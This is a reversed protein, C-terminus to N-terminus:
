QYGDVEVGDTVINIHVGICICRGVSGGTLVNAGRDEVEIGVRDPAVPVGVGVVPSTITNAGTDVGAQGAVINVGGIVGIGSGMNDADVGSVGGAILNADGSVVGGGGSTINAGAVGVNVDRGRTMVWLVIEDGAGTAKVGGISIVRDRGVVVSIM